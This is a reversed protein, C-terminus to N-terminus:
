RVEKIISTLLPPHHRSLCFNRIVTSVTKGWSKTERLTQATSIQESCHKTFEKQPIRRTEDFPTHIICWHKLHGRTNDCHIKQKNANGMARMSFKGHLKQHSHWLSLFTLHRLVDCLAPQPPWQTLWIWSKWGLPVLLEVLKLKFRYTLTHLMNLNCWKHM